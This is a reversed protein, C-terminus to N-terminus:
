ADDQWVGVLSGVLGGLLIFWKGPLVYSAVIAVLAAVLWPWFNAKGKYLGVLLAILVATFAFDLGWRTPDGLSSGLIFGFLTAGPWALYLTLGSGLLFSAKAKGKNKSLHNLTLAWSEDNLFFLSGYKQLPTLRVFWPHLAAGMLLHRLNVVLTTFIIFVTPLPVSWLSLVSFQASGAFVLSSMLFAEGLSMGTQGALVGYVSGYAFVSLAIPISQRAGELLGARDFEAQYSPQEPVPLTPDVKSVNEADPENKNETEKENKM